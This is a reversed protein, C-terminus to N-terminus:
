SLLELAAMEWERLEVQVRRGGKALVAPPGTGSNGEFDTRRVSGYSHSFDLVAQRKADSYNALWVTTKDRGRSLRFVVTTADTTNVLSGSEAIPTNSVDVVAPFLTQALLFSEASGLSEHTTASWRWQYYGKLTERAIRNRLVLGAGRNEIFFHQTGDHVM